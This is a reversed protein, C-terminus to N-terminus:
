STHEESRKVDAVETILDGAMCRAFDKLADRQSATASEDVLLVAKGHRPEYRVDTLTGDARVVAIVSLGNLSVGKWAGERVSWVLIGEKGALGYESNAFCPGTYVDCSRVELYDGSILPAPQKATLATAALALVAVFLKNKM